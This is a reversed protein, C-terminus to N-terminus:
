FKYLGLSGILSVCVLIVIPGLSLIFGVHRTSPAKIYSRAYLLRGIAFIAGLLASWHSSWYHASIYLSPILVVLLELSNMQVRYYREFEEHGSTAPAQLGTRNRAKGVLVIFVLYEILILSTVADLIMM